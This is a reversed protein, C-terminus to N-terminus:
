HCLDAGADEDGDGAPVFRWQYGDDLLTLVIVGWTTFREESNAHVNSIGSLPAGGTGVIFERIGRVPDARGDPDQPAFREYLHDHGNIVVDVGFEYLIRWIDRMDTNDGIKGSSFLPRHWYVATCRSKKASLEERLWEAQASGASTPAESNLAFVQWSGVTYDYYGLGPPGARDGFYDFYPGGGSVYDHNGPSPRTRARHRGWTPAYCDRFEAATGSIQADDGATFVTGPIGDLLSATMYAGALIGCQAIDGAGVLVGVSARSEVSLSAAPSASGASAKVASPQSVSSHGGCGSLLCVGGVLVAPLRRKM